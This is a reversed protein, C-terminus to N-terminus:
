QQQWKNTARRRQAKVVSVTLRECLTADVKTAWIIGLRWTQNDDFKSFINGWHCLFYVEECIYRSKGDLNVTINIFGDGSTSINNLFYGLRVDSPTTFKQMSSIGAELVATTSVNICLGSQKSEINEAGIGSTVSKDLDIEGVSSVKINQKPETGCSSSNKFNSKKQKLGEADRLNHKMTLSTASSHGTRSIMSSDTNGAEILLLTMSSRLGHNTM